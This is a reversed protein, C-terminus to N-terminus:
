PPPPHPSSYPEQFIIQGGPRPPRLRRRSWGPIDMGRYVVRGSTPELLRTLLRALTSKGCGTEGVLGVTEGEAIELSVGDVAHVRGIERSLLVGRTVPFHKVLEYAAVLPGESM